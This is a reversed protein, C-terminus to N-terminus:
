PTTFVTQAACGNVCAGDAFGLGLTEFVPACDDPEMPNSMCGPPSMETNVALDAGGVLAGLDIEVTDATLDVGELTVVAQNVRGCPADPAETPAASACGTSGLHVNWRPVAGGTVLFDVRLFKYGGRWTWYMSPVDLPPAATANDLHNLAFPVGVAYRVADYTGAPLTGTLRTNTASTGSDACAGTGDEFDLLVVGDRQWETAALDIATWTGDATRAELQSVYLRADALQATTGGRGVTVASSCDVRAGGIVAAFDLAVEVPTGPAPADGPEDEGGCGALPVALVLPLALLRLPCRM